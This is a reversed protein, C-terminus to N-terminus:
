YKVIQADPYDGPIMIWCNGRVLRQHTFALASHIEEVVMRPFGAQPRALPLSPLQALAVHAEIRIFGDAITLCAGDMVKLQPMGNSLVLLGPRFVVMSAVQRLM